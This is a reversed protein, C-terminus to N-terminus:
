SGRSEEDADDLEAGEPELAVPLLGIPLDVLVRADDIAEIFQPLVPLLWRERKGNPARWEVEFLDQVTNSTLGVITGLAQTVPAADGESPRLREVPMGIADALYFEDEDLPPLDDRDVLLERDRLAEADDRSRVGSLQLRVIERGPVASVSEVEAQPGDAGLQVVRGVVLSTSSPDYLKARLGGRIGHPATIRAVALTRKSEAM